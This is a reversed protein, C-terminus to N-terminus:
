ELQGTVINIPDVYFCCWETLIHLGVHVCSYSFFFVKPKDYFLIVFIIERAIIIDRAPIYNIFVKIVTGNPLLNAEYSNQMSLSVHDM